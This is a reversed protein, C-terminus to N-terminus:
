PGESGGPMTELVEKLRMLARFYRRAGAEQSIGLLLAAEAPGLQEFHRLPLVKRDIPDLSNLTGHRIDARRDYLLVPFLHGRRDGV